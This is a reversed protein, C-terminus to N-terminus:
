MDVVEKEGSSLVDYDFAKATDGNFYDDLTDMIKIFSEREIMQGDAGKYYIIINEQKRM